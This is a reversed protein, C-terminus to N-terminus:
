VRRRLTAGAMAFQRRYVPVETPDRFLDFSSRTMARLYLPVLAAPLFAPLIARPVRRSRAADLHHRAIGATRAILASIKESTGGTLIDRESVGASELLEAPLMLRQRAAHFPVTRLLGTCGFAIGAPRAVDDSSDGAGLIRAALRMVNGSTADAYAEWEAVTAFPREALDNERADILSEFLAQPLRHQNIVGSLATAVEHARPKGAYAEAIADRWWQLRIQGAIPQTVSEATKAVEYNFAYLALLHRRVTEPAFLASLYRDFDLRRVLDECAAFPDSPM